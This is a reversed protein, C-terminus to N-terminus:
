GLGKCRALYDYILKALKATLAEDEQCLKTQRLIGSLKQVNCVMCCMPLLLDGIMYAVARLNMEDSLLTDRQGLMVATRRDIMGAISDWM